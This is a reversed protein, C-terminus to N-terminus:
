QVWLQMVANVTPIGPGSVELSSLYTNRPTAITTRITLLTSSETTTAPSFTATVGPPLGAFRFSIPGAYGGLRVVNVTTEVISGQLTAVFFPSPIYVTPATLTITVPFEFLASGYNETSVRINMPFTGASASPHVVLTLTTATKGVDVVAPTFEAAVGAPL